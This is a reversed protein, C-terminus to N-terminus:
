FNELMLLLKKEEKKMTVKVKIELFLMQEMYLMMYVEGDQMLRM